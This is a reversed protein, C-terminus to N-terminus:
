QQHQECQNQNAVDRLEPEPIKRRHGEGSQQHDIVLPQSVPSGTFTAEFRKQLIMEDAQDYEDADDQM